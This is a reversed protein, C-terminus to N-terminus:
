RIGRSTNLSWSRPYRPKDFRFVSKIVMDVVDQDVSADPTVIWLHEDVACHYQIVEIPEEWLNAEWARTDDFDTEVEVENQIPCERSEFLEDGNVAKDVARDSELWYREVVIYERTDLNILEWMLDSEPNNQGRVIAPTAIALAAASAIFSRRTHSM